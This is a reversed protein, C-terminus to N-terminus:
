KYIHYHCKLKQGVSSDGEYGSSLWLEKYCTISLHHHLQKILLTSLLILAWAQEM